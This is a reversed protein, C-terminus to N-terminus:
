GVDARPENLEQEKRRQAAQAIENLESDIQEPQIDKNINTPQGRLLQMKEAGIGAGVMLKGLDKCDPAVEVARGVLVRVLREFADALDEKKEQRLEATDTAAPRSQGTAWDELTKRPIATLRAAESYNPKGDKVTTELVALADAIEVDSYARRKM